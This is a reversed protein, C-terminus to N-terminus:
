KNESELWNLYNQYRMYYSKLTLIDDYLYCFLKSANSLKKLVDEIHGLRGRVIKADLGNLGKKYEEAIEQVVDVKDRDLREYEELALDFLKRIWAIKDVRFIQNGPADFFASTANPVLKEHLLWPIIQRLDQIEVEKNGRFYALAKAFHLIAMNARVSVGNETQSCLAKIKDRGCDNKCVQSVTKGSMRIYDKSKYEAIESALDCFEFQAMFFQLRRLILPPVEVKMIEKFAFDLEAPTFIIQPPVIEEPKFHHEIRFLLDELFRSNFNLARVVIDIRDKLAEIVQYTGGGLDDNATLFWASEGCEVVQDMIEAYGDAILTLLASQTRTPIRNYEDVIKVRMDLWRRWAIRIEEMQNAALLDKPLPTGLMDSVTLQPQGHLIARHLDKISYGALLGMLVSSATKGRGPGGIFLARKRLLFNLLPLLVFSSYSQESPLSLNTGAGTFRVQKPNGKNFEIDYFPSIIANNVIWLYAQRAKEDPTIKPPQVVEAQKEKTLPATGEFVDRIDFKPVEVQPRPPITPAEPVHKVRALPDEQEPPTEKKSKSMSM